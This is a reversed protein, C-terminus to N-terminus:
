GDVLHIQDKCFIHLSIHGVLPLIKSCLQCCMSWPHPWATKWDLKYKPLEEQATQKLDIQAPKVFPLQQRSTGSTQFSLELLWTNKSTSYTPKIWWIIYIHRAFHKVSSIIKKNNVFPSKDTSGLSTILYSWRQNKM